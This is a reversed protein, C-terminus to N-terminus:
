MIDYDDTKRIPFSNNQAIKKATDEAMLVTQTEHNFELDVVTVERVTQGFLKAVSAVKGIWIEGKRPIHAPKIRSKRGALLSDFEKPLAESMKKFTEEEDMKLEKKKEV